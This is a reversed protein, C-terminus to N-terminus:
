QMIRPGIMVIDPFVIILVLLTMLVFFFPMTALTVTLFKVQKKM